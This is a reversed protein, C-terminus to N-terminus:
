YYRKLKSYTMHYTSNHTTKYPYTKHCIISPMTNTFPLPLYKHNTILLLMRQIWAATYQLYAMYKCPTIYFPLRIKQVMPREPSYAAPVTKLSVKSFFYYIPQGWVIPRVQEQNYKSIYKQLSNRSYKANNKM